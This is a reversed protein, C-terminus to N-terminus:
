NFSRSHCKQFAASQVVRLSFRDQVLAKDLFINLLVIDASDHM